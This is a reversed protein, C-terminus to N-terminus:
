LFIFWFRHDGNPNENQGLAVHNEPQASAKALQFLVWKRHRESGHGHEEFLSM